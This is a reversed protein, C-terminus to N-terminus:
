AAGSNVVLRAAEIAGDAQACAAIAAPQARRERQVISLTVPGELTEATVLVTRDM